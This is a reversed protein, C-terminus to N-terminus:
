TNTKIVGGHELYVKKRKYYHTQLIPHDDVLDIIIPDKKTRMVRGLFQIYFEVMDAALLLSDLKPHDFGTGIKGVTGILIQSNKNYERETGILTTVNNHLKLMNYLIEAQIKRKVLVLWTRDKTFSNIINVILKNRKENESQQKLVYNWDLMGNYMRKDDIKINTKVEYIYHLKHLKRLIYNSGFFLKFAINLEDPRYPTATLGIMKKPTINLLNLSRKESLLLHTEDTILLEYSAVNVIKSISAINVIAFPADSYLTADICKAGSCFQKISETWQDLLCLRHVVVLTKLKLHCAIALTTVTKGFGTYCSIMIVGNTSLNLKAEEFINLQESKLTGSFLPFNFIPNENLKKAGSIYFPVKYTLPAIPIAFQVREGSSLIICTRKLLRNEDDCSAVKILVSM